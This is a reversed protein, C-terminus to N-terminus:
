STPIPPQKRLRRWLNTVRLSAYRFLFYPYWVAKPVRRIVHPGQVVINTADWVWVRLPTAGPVARLNLTVNRTPSRGPHWYNDFQGLEVEKESGREEFLADVYIFGSAGKITIGNKAPFLQLSEFVSNHVRVLDLCDERGGWLAKNKITVGSSNSVKLTDDWTHTRSTDTQAPPLSEPREDLFYDVNAISRYNQDVFGSM